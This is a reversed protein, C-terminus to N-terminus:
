ELNKVTVKVVPNDLMLHLYEDRVGVAKALELAEEARQVSDGLSRSQMWGENDRYRRILIAEAIM